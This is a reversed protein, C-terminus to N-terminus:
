VENNILQKNMLLSFNCKSALNKMAAQLETTGRLQYGSPYTQKDFVELKRKQEKFCSTAPKCVSLVGLKLAQSTIGNNEFGGIIGIAAADSSKLGLQKATFVGQDYAVTKAKIRETVKKDNKMQNRRKLKHEEYVFLIGNQAKGNQNKHSAILIESICTVLKQLIFCGM